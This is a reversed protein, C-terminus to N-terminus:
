ATTLLRTSSTSGAVLMMTASTVGQGSRRQRRRRRRRRRGLLWAVRRFPHLAGHTACPQDVRTQRSRRITNAAVGVCLDIRSDIPLDFAVHEIEGLMWALDALPELIEIRFPVDLAGQFRIRRGDTEEPGHQRRPAARAEQQKRCGHHPKQQLVRHLAPARRQRNQASQAKARRFLDLALPIGQLRQAAIVRVERPLAVRDRLGSRRQVRRAGVAHAL